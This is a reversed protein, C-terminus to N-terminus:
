WGPDTPRLGLLAKGASEYHTRFAANHQVVVHVDRFHRELPNASYIANTGAAHFVGDVARVAEHMAHTIALRARAIARDQEAGDAGRLATAAADLVFARAAGLIAEAEAASHQVAPRDRLPVLSSTSSEGALAAFADIAGRAIGLANAAVVVWLTVFFLRPAYLQGLEVPPEAFSTTRAAEVFVDEVVFDHSGTARLGVVQWTDEIRADAAPLWAARTVPAGTAILRPADGDMVRCTCYLWDAYTVGSAFNWRGSIRYGGPVVRAEGQPRLSGAARLGAPAGVISRAVDTTLWGTFLSLVTGIMACWGVSGDARSVEEIARFAALPPLEQGGLARPLFMQLLGAGALAEVVQPPTRRLAEGEERTAAILPALEAARAAIAETAADLM